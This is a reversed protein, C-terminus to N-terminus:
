LNVRYIEYVSDRATDVLLYVVGLRYYEGRWSLQGYVAVNYEYVFMDGCKYRYTPEFTIEQWIDESTQTGSYVGTYKKTNLDEMTQEANFETLVENKFSDNIWVKVFEDAKIAEKDTEYDFTSGELNTVNMTDIHIVYQKENGTEGMVYLYLLRDKLEYNVFKYNVNILLNTGGNEDICFIQGCTIGTSGVSFNSYIYIKDECRAMFNIETMTEIYSYEDDDLSLTKDISAIRKNEKTLYNFCYVEFAEKSAYYYYIKEEDDCLNIFFQSELDKEFFENKIKNLTYEYHLKAKRTVKLSLTNIEYIGDDRYVKLKHNDADLEKFKGKGFSRVKNGNMDTAYIEEGNSFFFLNDVLYFKGRSDNKFLEEVKNSVTSNAIKAITRDGSVKKYYHYMEGVFDKEFDVSEYTRFYLDGNNYIFDDGINYASTEKENSEELMYEKSDIKIIKNTGDWEIVGDFLETINRIPLYTTGEYSIPYVREKTEGVQKYFEQVEGNYIVKIEQNVLATIDVNEETVSNIDTKSASKDVEGEGLYITSKQGDWKIEVNFLSSVARIPLYNTGEYFVPYVVLGKENYFSKQEDNYIISYEKNFVANINYNAFSMNSFVLICSLVCVFLIM